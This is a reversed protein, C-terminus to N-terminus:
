SGLRELLAKADTLDRTDFGETFWNYIEALMARAEDRSGESALLRALSTTARLELSKANHHRAIEVAREFRREAEESIPPSEKLLLEGSLRHIESENLDENREADHQAEALASLGEDIRGADSLAEALLCLYFPRGLETGTARLGALGQQLLSIAEDNRVGGTIAGGRLITGFAFQANLGHDASLALLREAVDEAAKRERRYLHLLGFFWEALALTHPHSLERALALAEKGRRLAQEPYGLNWLTWASFSLSVVGIDAGVVFALFGQQERNYLNIVKELNEGAAVFEGMQFLAQGLAQHALLLQTSDSSREARSRMEEATEFAIRVEGRLLYLAYLGFLVLFGEPPDGLAECLERARTLALEVELAAWGQLSMYAPALALQLPMERRIRESEDNFSALLDIATTLNRIAEENAGREVAQKGARGLYEVAKDANETHSYHHALATVYDDLQAPFLAEIAKGVSEHVQKRREILLSNYAVEQTLAHKFVYETDHESPQEYIFERARLEALSRNLSLGEIGTIRQLVALPSERGIVALTQLLEKQQDALRDIRAALMGQVTPPLRLQSLSRKVKISGNRILAGEDFLAQVIEEIFFPNGGTREAILRKLPDLEVDNGLLAALMAVGDDKGLPDLRLQTYYSKNGWEHRYEPRYNFLLLVRTSAVSDALLDLLAQTQEDIWHLDEFILVLPQNLSDRLFIRKIAELTRQRKIRADMQANLDLGEHVGLLGFLYPLTDELSPDVGIVTARVKESRGAVDDGDQIGFYKRLLELVPLWASAKGHSVSYAELVKCSVALMGKFEHFLRSKGTGAEAVVAIVQGRGEIAQGLAREMQELERERGVFRTLGRRQALEFHTRLAGPGLVEYAEVPQSVGKVATAGLARLEFYGECLKATYDSVAISGAPAIMEMRSALNATHGILRYEVKGDAEVSYAVVEGTHVGVRAELSQLGRAAHDQGYSRLQQQMQLAAYLARQPHDEYAAPAGFLAFIGDGTTRVLYGEYRHVSDSMIRLLPEVIARGEEPDLSELLETSGKLDAFLATVIKREGVLTDNTVVAQIDPEARTASAPGM